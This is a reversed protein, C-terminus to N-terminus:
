KEPHTPVPYNEILYVDSVDCEPYVWHSWNEILWNKLIAGRGVGSSEKPLVVLILGSKYGSSVLLGLGREKQAPDYALLDVVEEHSGSGKIRFVAGRPIYEEGYDLLKCWQM